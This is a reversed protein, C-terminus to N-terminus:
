YKTVTFIYFIAFNWSSNSTLSFAHGQALCHIALFSHLRHSSVSFNVVLFWYSRQKCFIHNNMPETYVNAPGFLASRYSNWRGLHWTIHRWYAACLVNMNVLWAPRIGFPPSMFFLQLWHTDNERPQNVDKLKSNSNMVEKPFLPLFISFVKIQAFLDFKM